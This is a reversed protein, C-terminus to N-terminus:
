PCCMYIFVLVGGLVHLRASWYHHLLDRFIHQADTFVDNRTRRRGERDERNEARPFTSSHPRDMAPNQPIPM